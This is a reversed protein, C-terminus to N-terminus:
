NKLLVTRSFFVNPEDIVDFGLQKMVIISKTFDSDLVHFKPEVIFVKGNPNLLSKIEQLFNFQNPVEHLMYFILIFDSKESLGISDKNCKHLTITGNFSSKQIKQKVKALMGDQLDAAIVKGTNGVLNAMEMTFYGPGCGVDLVSMGENIYPKLIRKPNHILKRINIELAGAKEVPCVRNKNERSMIVGIILKIM